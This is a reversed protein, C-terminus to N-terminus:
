GKRAKRKLRRVAYAAGLGTMPAYFAGSFAMNMLMERFSLNVPALALKEAAVLAQVQDQLEPKGKAMELAWDIILSLSEAGPRYNFQQMLIFAASESLVGGAIGAVCGLFFAASYELRVQFRLISHNLAITGALFIGAFLFVNLLTLYPVTTTLLIIVAGLLVTYIKEPFSLTPQTSSDDAM